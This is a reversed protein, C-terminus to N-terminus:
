ASGGGTPPRKWANPASQRNFPTNIGLADISEVGGVRLTQPGPVIEDKRVVLTDGLRFSAPAARRGRPMSQIGKLIVLPDSFTADSTRAKACLRVLKACGRARASTGRSLFPGAWNQLLLCIPPNPTSGASDTLRM